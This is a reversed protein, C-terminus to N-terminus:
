QKHADWHKLIEQIPPAEVDYLDKRGIREQEAELEEKRRHNATSVKPLPLQGM